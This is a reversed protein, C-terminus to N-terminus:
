EALKATKYKTEKAKKLEKNEQFEISSAWSIYFLTSSKGYNSIITGDPLKLGTSQYNLFNDLYYKFTIAQSKLFKIQFFVAPNFTNVKNSFWEKNTTKTNDYLFKEKYHFLLNLDVGVALFSQNKVNGIKFAFPVNLGYARQKFTVKSSDFYNVMGINRIGLGTYFGCKKNFNIHLQSEHNIFGSFRVVESITTATTNLKAYSFILETQSTPYYKQAFAPFTALCIFIFLNIKM